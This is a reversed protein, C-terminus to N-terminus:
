KDLLSKIRSLYTISNDLGGPRNRELWIQRHQDILVTLKKALISKTESPIESIPIDIGANIRAVGYECAFKLIDAVWQFEKIILDADKRDMDTNKLPRLVDDIYRQTKELNELSMRGLAMDSFSLNFREHKEIGLHELNLEDLITKSLRDVFILIVFLVTRNPISFGRQRYTNGLDYAIKGMVGTKDNFVHFNLLSPIDLWKELNKDVNSNWALGAGVLFGLYSIPLPQLHGHDGWDTILYGLANHNKGNIAANRLNEIANQTRGAFSNWSSTGPCVYFPLGNENMIKSLKDFPHGAEYGWILAIADKPLKPILK